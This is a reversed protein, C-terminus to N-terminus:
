FNKKSTQVLLKSKFIVNQIKRKIVVIPMKDNQNTRIIGIQIGTINDYTLYYENFERKIYKYLIFPFNCINKKTNNKNNNLDYMSSNMIKNSNIYIPLGHTNIIKTIGIDLLNNICTDNYHSCNRNCIYHGCKTYLRWIGYPYGCLSKGVFSQGLIINSKMYESLNFINTTGEDLYDILIIKCIDKINLINVFITKYLHEFIMKKNIIKFKSKTILKFDISLKKHALREKEQNQIEIKRENEKKIRENEKKIIIDCEEKQKEIVNSNKVLNVWSM